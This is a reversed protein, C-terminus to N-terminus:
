NKTTIRPIKYTKEKITAAVPRCFATAATAAVVVENAGVPEFWIFSNFALIQLGFVQM